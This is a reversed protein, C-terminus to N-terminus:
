ARNCTQSKKKKEQTRRTGCLTACSKNKKGEFLSKQSLDDSLEARASIMWSSPAPDQINWDHQSIGHAMISMEASLGNVVIQTPFLSFNVYLQEKTCCSISNILNVNEIKLNPKKRKLYYGGLRDDMFQPAPDQINWNHQSIGHAMISMEASLGTVVMQTPFLSFNVYLQEKICRSISNVLNVNDIKLNPKKRKLYYGGLRRRDM